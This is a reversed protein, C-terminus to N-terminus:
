GPLRLEVRRPTVLISNKAFDAEMEPTICRYLPSIKTTIFNDNKIDLVFGEPFILNQFKQKVDLPADYWQKAINTMFNLAYEIHSESITQRQELEALQSSLELKETDLDDIVVQKDEESIKGSIFSKITQTRTAAIEDLKDRVEVLDQNINGLEKLTQRKLIEKMLKITSPKPEIASLLEEFKGHVRDAMMSGTGRCAPRHCFYRPSNQPACATLYGNCQVCRVFRRLPYMVNIKHHKLGLQYDKNKLKM